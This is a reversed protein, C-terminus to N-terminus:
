NLHPRAEIEIIHMKNSVIQIGGQDMQISVKRDPYSFLRIQKVGYCMQCTYIKEAMVLYEQDLM